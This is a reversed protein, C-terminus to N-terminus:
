KSGTQQEMDLELQQKKVQMCIEWSATLTTHYKWRKLFKGCNITIWLILSKPMTLLASTFTKRSREHTKSSGVSTPLKIEPEDAKELDLKFMQFNVIWTINFGPKSFKSCYKALTHSSHLQTTTQVNKPMPIFVSRKWDQPWQQTKWILFSFLWMCIDSVTIHGFLMHKRISYKLFRSSSNLNALYVFFSGLHSCDTNYIFTNYHGQAKANFRHSQSSGQTGEIHEKGTLM